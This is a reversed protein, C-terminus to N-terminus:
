ENKESSNNNLVNDVTINEQEVENNKINNEQNLILNSKFSAERKKLNERQEKYQKANLVPILFYVAVILVVIIICILFFTKDTKGLKNLIMELM